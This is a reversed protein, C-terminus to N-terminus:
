PTRAAQASFLQHVCADAPFDVDTRNWEVLVRQQEAEDMMPLSAVPRSPQALASRLLTQLHAVLRTMSAADFLDACFDLSGAFGLPSEALTLSLDFKAVRSGGEIGRLSLG